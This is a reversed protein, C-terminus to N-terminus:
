LDSLGVWEVDDNSSSASPQQERAPLPSTPRPSTPKRPPAPAPRQSREVALVWPAQPNAPADDALGHAERQTMTRAEALERRSLKREPSPSRSRDNYRRTLRHTDLM